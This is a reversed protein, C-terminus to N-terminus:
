SFNGETWDFNYDPDRWYNISRFWNFENYHHYKTRAKNETEQYELHDFPTYLEAEEESCGVTTLIMRRLPDFENEELVWKVPEKRQKSHHVLMDEFEDLNYQCNYEDIIFLDNHSEVIQKLENFTEFANSRQLLPKWGCSTKGIHREYGFEPSDVLEFDGWEGFIDQMTKKNKSFLYYNTGM